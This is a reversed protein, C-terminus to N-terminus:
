LDDSDHDSSDCETSSGLLTVSEQSEKYEQSSRLQKEPLTDSESSSAEEFTAGFHGTKPLDENSDIECVEVHPNDCSENMVVMANDIEREQEQQTVVPEGMSKSKSKSKKRRRVYTYNDDEDEDSDSDPPTRSKRSAVRSQHGRAKRKKASPTVFSGAAELDLPTMTSSPEVQTQRVVPGLFVKETSTLNLFYSNGSSEFYHFGPPVSSIHAPLPFTQNIPVQNPTPEYAQTMTTQRMSDAVSM